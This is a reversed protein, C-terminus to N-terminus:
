SGPTGGSPAPSPPTSTAPCSKSLRPSDPHFRRFFDCTDRVDEDYGLKRYAGILDDLAEPIISTRPYTAVVNKLLLVASDYAKFRLYFAANKYAKYAFKEELEALKLSAQAAAPTGPFRTLVEQYTAQAVAGYTPDLEPRRWLAAYADGARVLAIPALTDTAFDDSVRRFERVAQLNSKQGLRTEALRFRALPIRPDGTPMELQVREYAVAADDWKERRFLDNARVWMSDISAATATGSSVPTPTPAPEKGGCAAAMCVAAVAVTWQVRSMSLSM